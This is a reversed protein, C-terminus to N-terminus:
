KEGKRPFRVKAVKGKGNCTPCNGTSIRKDGHCVPCDVKGLKVWRIKKM